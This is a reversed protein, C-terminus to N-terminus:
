KSLMRKFWLNQEKAQLITRLYYKAFKEREKPTMYKVYRQRDKPDDLNLTKGRSSEATLGTCIMAVM